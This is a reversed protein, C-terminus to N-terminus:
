FSFQASVQNEVLASQRVCFQFINTLSLTNSLILGVLGADLDTLTFIVINMLCIRRCCEFVFGCFFIPESRENLWQNMRMLAVMLQCRLSARRLDEPRWRQEGKWWFQQTLIWCWNVKKLFMEIFIQWRLFLTPHLNVLGIKELNYFCNYFLLVCM